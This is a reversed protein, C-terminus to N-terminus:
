SSKWCTLKMNECFKMERNQPNNLQLVLRLTLYHPLCCNRHGKNSNKIGVNAHYFTHVNTTKTSTTMSCSTPFAGWAHAKGMAFWIDCNKGELSFWVNPLYKMGEFLNRSLTSPYLISHVYNSIKDRFQFFLTKLHCFPKSLWTMLM